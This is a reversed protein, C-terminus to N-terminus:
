STNRGGGRGGGLSHIEHEANFSENLGSETADNTIHTQIVSQGGSSLNLLEDGVLDGLNAM